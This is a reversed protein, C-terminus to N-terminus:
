INPMSSRQNFDGLPWIRRNEIEWPLNWAPYFRENSIQDWLLIIEFITWDLGVLRHWTEFRHIDIDNIYSDSFFKLINPNDISPCTITIYSSRSFFVHNWSIFCKKYRRCKKNDRSMKQEDIPLESITCYEDTIHAQTHM